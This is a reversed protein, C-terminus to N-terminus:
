SRQVLDTQSEVVRGRQNAVRTAAEELRCSYHDGRDLTAKLLSSQAFIAVREDFNIPTAKNKTPTTKHRSFSDRSPTMARLFVLSEM